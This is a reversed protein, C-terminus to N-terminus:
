AAEENVALCDPCTFTRYVYPASERHILMAYDDRGLIPANCSNCCAVVENCICEPECQNVCDTTTM